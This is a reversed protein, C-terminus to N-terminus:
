SEHMSGLLILANKFQISNSLLHHLNSLFIPPTKQTFRLTFIIIVTGKTKTTIHM